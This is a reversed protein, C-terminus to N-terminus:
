LVNSNLQMAINNFFIPYHLENTRYMRQWVHQALLDYDLKGDSCNWSTEEALFGNLRVM